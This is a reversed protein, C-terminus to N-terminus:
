SSKPTQRSRLPCRIQESAYCPFAPRTTPPPPPLFFYWQKNRGAPRSKIVLMLISNTPTSSVTPQTSARFEDIHHARTALQLPIKPAAHLSLMKQGGRYEEEWPSVSWRTSSFSSTLLYTDLSRSLRGVLRRFDGVVDQASIFASITQRCDSKGMQHIPRVSLRSVHNSLFPPLPLLPLCM